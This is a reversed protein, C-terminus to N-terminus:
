FCCNAASTLVCPQYVANAASALLQVNVFFPGFFAKEKRKSIEEFFRFAFNTAFHPSFVHTYRLLMRFSQSVFGMVSGLSLKELLGACGPELRVSLCPSPSFKHKQTSNPSAPLAPPFFTNVDPRKWRWVQDRGNNRQIRSKRFHHPLKLSSIDPDPARLLSVLESTRDVNITL